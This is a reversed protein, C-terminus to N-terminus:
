KVNSKLPKPFLASLAVSFAVVSDDAQKTRQTSSTFYDGRGTSPYKRIRPHLYRNFSYGGIQLCLYPTRLQADDNADYWEPLGAGHGSEQRKLSLAQEARKEPVPAISRRRRDIDTHRKRKLPEEPLDKQTHKTPRSPFRKSDRTRSFSFRTPLNQCRDRQQRDHGPSTSDNKHLRTSRASEVKTYPPLLLSSRYRMWPPKM